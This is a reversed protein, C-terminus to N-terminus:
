IVMNEPDFGSLASHLLHSQLRLQQQQFTPLPLIQQIKHQQFHIQRSLKLEEELRRAEETLLALQETRRKLEAVLEEQRTLQRRQERQEKRRRAHLRATVRDVHLPLGDWDSPWISIKAEPSPSPNSNPRVSAQRAQNIHQHEQHVISVSSSDTPGLLGSEPGSLLDLFLLRCFYGM